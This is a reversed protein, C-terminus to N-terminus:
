SGSRRTGSKSSRSEPKIDNYDVLEILATEAGDGRRSGMKVIRTYGGPRNKVKEAIEDFLLSVAMKNSLESFAKRRNNMTDNKALTILPEVYPRLAKAKAVTTKIKHEEILAIALSRLTAKRHSASRGLKKGKVLHRM